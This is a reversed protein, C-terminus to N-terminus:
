VKMAVTDPRARDFIENAWLMVIMEGEGVNTINHTWGPITEVIRGEGGRVPVEHIEGTLIHRFGFHATGALVLFKETKSHHYHDGRTVGPGATFYSFQGTDRTKLMEVFAGRPDSYVPVSYAFDAPPLYSLYTAHLARMLGTGVGPMVLTERSRPFAMIAEAVEGVTTKYVPEAEAFAFGEVPEDLLALLADVVQDVYVLRLEASPDHVEIPLGHAVNHCFTAVASNYNPRCWKGFVNPLRFVRVPTDTAEAHTRLAEEAARKSTGYPTDREAQISSAYAIPARNKAGALAAALESTFGANGTAFEGPDQPRNVGALHFVFDAEGAAARLDDASSGRVLKVVECDGRESLRVCLNRGVFGEAGTVLVSRV